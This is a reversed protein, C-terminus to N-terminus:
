LAAGHHMDSEAHRVLVGNKGLAKTYPGHYPSLALVSPKAGRAGGRGPQEPFLISFKCIGGDLLKCYVLWPFKELWSHQFRVTWSKKSKKVQHSRLRFSPSPKCHSHLFQMKKRDPLEKALKGLHPMSGSSVKVLFGLDILSGETDSSPAAVDVNSAVGTLVKKRSPHLVSLSSKSPHGKDADEQNM